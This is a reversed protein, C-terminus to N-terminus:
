DEKRYFLKIKIAISSKSVNQAAEAQLNGAQTWQLDHLHLVGTFFNLVIDHM